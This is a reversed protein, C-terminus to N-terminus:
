GNRQEWCNCGNSYYDNSTSGDNGSRCKNGCFSENCIRLTGVAGCTAIPLVASVALQTAKKARMQRKAKEKVKFEGSM